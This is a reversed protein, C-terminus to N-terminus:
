FQAYTTFDHGYSRIQMLAQWTGRQRSIGDTMMLSAIVSGNGTQESPKM